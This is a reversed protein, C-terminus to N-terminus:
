QGRIHEAAVTKAERALQSREGSMGERFVYHVVDGGWVAIHAQESARKCSACLSSSAPLLFRLDISRIDFHAHTTRNRLVAHVGERGGKTGM